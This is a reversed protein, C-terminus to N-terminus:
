LYETGPVHASLMYRYRPIHYRRPVMRQPCCRFVQGPCGLRARTSSEFLQDCAGLVDGAPSRKTLPLRAPGSKEARALAVAAPDRARVPKGYFSAESAMQEGDDCKVSVTNNWLYTAICIPLYVM